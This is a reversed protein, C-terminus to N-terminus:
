LLPLCYHNLRRIRLNHVHRFVIRPKNISRRNADPWSPVFIGSKIYTARSNGEAQAKANAVKAAETPSPVMPSRVPMVVVNEKVVVVKFRMASSKEVVLSEIVAPAAEVIALRIKPVTAPEMAPVSKRVPTYAAAVVEAPGWRGPMSESRRVAGNASMRTGETTKAVTTFGSAKGRGPTRAETAAEMTAATEVTSASTMTASTM